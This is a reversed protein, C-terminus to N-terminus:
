TVLYKKSSIELLKILQTGPHSCFLLTASVAGKIVVLSNMDNLCNFPSLAFLAPCVSLYDSLCLLRDPERVVM